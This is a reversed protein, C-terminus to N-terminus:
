RRERKISNKPGTSSGTSKSDFIKINCQNEKYMEVMM